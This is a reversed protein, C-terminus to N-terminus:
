PTFLVPVCEPYGKIAIAPEREAPSNDRDAPQAVLIVV